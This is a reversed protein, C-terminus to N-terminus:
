PKLIVKLLLKETQNEYLRDFWAPGEELPAVATIMSEVDIRKQQLMDLCALYEGNSACSGQLSLQKTVVNQLPIEVSPSINGVLTIAGGKHISNVGLKVTQPLGVAEIAVDAGKNGTLDYLTSFYDDLNANNICEDAGMSKALKLKENDIDVAIIKGCGVLKLTQIVLLGIMGAGVVVVKDNITIPSLGVAHFAISLPEVM